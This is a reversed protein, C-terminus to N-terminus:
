NLSESVAFGCIWGNRIMRPLISDLAIQENVAFESLTGLSAGESLLTLIHRDLASIRGPEVRDGQRCVCLDIHGEATLTSPSRGDQHLAWVRDIPWDSDVLALSPATHLCHREPPAQTLSAQFGAVDFMPSDASLWAQKIAWELRALDALYAFDELEDRTEILSGVYVPFQGGYEDLDANVAKTRLAFERSLQAFYREGLIQRCVPYAKEITRTLAGLANARYIGVRAEPLLRDTRIEALLDASPDQRPDALADSLLRQLTALQM